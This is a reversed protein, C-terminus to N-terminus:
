STAFCSYIRSQLLMEFTGEEAMKLRKELDEELIYLLTETYYLFACNNPDIVFSGVQIEQLQYSQM